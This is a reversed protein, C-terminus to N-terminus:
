ILICYINKKDIWRIIYTYLVFFSMADFQIHSFILLLFNLKKKKKIWISTFMHCIHQSFGVVVFYQYILCLWVYFTFAVIQRITLFQSDNSFFFFWTVAKRCYVTKWKTKKKKWDFYVIFKTHLIRFQNKKKLCSVFVKVVM